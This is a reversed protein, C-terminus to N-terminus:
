NSIVMNFYHLCMNEVFSLQVVYNHCNGCSYPSKELVLRLKRNWQVHKTHRQYTIKYLTLRLLVTEFRYQRLKELVQWKSGIDLNSVSAINVQYFLSYYITHHWLNFNLPLEWLPPFNLNLLQNEQNILQKRPKLSFLYSKRNYYIIVSKNNLM